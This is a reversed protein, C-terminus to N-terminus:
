RTLSFMVTASRAARVRCTMPRSISTIRLRSERLRTATSSPVARKVSGCVTSTLSGGAPRSPVKVASLIMMAVPVDGARGSVTSNSSCVMMSESPMM